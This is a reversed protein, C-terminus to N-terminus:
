LNPEHLVLFPVDTHYSIEEITPRFLIRQFLNINKAVMVILDINRSELFCQVGAEIKKNIIKHFSHKKDFFFDHLYAKNELQFKTLHEEKKQIYLIRISANFMASLKDIENLIATPYFINYDTPFAIEEPIKFVGKEPVVLVPCEVQTILDGTNSGVIIESLGSAGKTGMVVLDIGKEKIVEKVSHIFLNYTNILQFNHLPNPYHKKIKKLVNKLAIEGQKELVVDVVDGSLFLPFESAGYHKILTVHLLYFNCPIDKFFHLAYEIANWSNESFDTPILIDKM